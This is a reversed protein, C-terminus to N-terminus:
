KNIGGPKRKPVTPVPVTRKPVTIKRPPPATQSNEITKKIMATPDIRTTKKPQVPTQQPKQVVTEQTEHIVQQKVVPKTHGTQLGSNSTSQSTVKKVMDVPTSSTKKVTTKEVEAKADEVAKKEKELKLVAQRHEWAKWAPTFYAGLIAMFLLFEIPWKKQARMLITTLHKKIMETNKTTPEYPKDTTDKAFIRLGGIVFRDIIYVIIDAWMAYESIDVIDNYQKDNPTSGGLETVITQKTTDAFPNTTQNNNNTGGNINKDNLQSAETPPAIMKELDEPNSFDLLPAVDKPKEKINVEVKPLSENTGNTDASGTNNAQETPM